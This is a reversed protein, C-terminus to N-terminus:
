WGSPGIPLIAWRDCEQLNQTIAAAANNQWACITSSMRDKPVLQYRDNAGVGVVSGNDLIGLITSQGSAHQGGDIYSVNNAPTGDAFISGAATINRQPSNGSGHAMTGYQNLGYALTSGNDLVLMSVNRDGSIQKVNTIGAYENQCTSTAGSLNFWGSTCSITDNDYVIGIIGKPTSQSAGFIGFHAVNTAIELPTEVDNAHASTIENANNEGWCHLTNDIKHACAIQSWQHVKIDKVGTMVTVATAQNGTCGTGLSGNACQGASYVKGKNDLWLSFNSGVAVRNINGQASNDDFQPVACATEATTASASKGCDTTTGDGLQGYGNEGWCVTTHDNKVACSFATGANIGFGSIQRVNTLNDVIYFDDPINQRDGWTVVSGNDLVYGNRTGGVSLRSSDTLGEPTLLNSGGSSGGSGGSATADATVSCEELNGYPDGEGCPPSCSSLTWFGGVVITFLLCISKIQSSFFQKVEKMTEKKLYTSFVLM